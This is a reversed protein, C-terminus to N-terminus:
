NKQEALIRNKMLWKVSRPWSYDAGLRMGTFYRAAVEGSGADVFQILLTYETRSVRNIAGIVAQEAGLKKIVPGLCESCSGAKRTAMAETQVGSTDIVAYRGSEALLRKAEQTSEEMYKADRADPAIVGGGASTDELTSAFVAVKKPEDARGGDVAAASFLACACLLGRIRWANANQRHITANWALLKM